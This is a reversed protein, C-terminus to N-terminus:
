PQPARVTPTPTAHAGTEIERRVRARARDLQDATAGLRVLLNETMALAVEAESVIVTAGLARLTPADRLYTTRTMVAINENLAVANKVTDFPPANSAFVLAQARGIGATELIERQSAEGYIARVGNARLEHIADLNMDIVTPVLNHEHLLKIVHRGVPGHGIVIVHNDSADHEPDDTEASVPRAFRRSLPAVLKFLLPNLTISIISAAVLAQTAEPPLVQLQRGLAAVMFSFEGVQALAIAVAVATRVPHRLAFVVVLAALPKGLMVVGITALTLPIHNVLQTPDFLMGMAVFFLVAFADRLPLAESAARASFDSQGVVM